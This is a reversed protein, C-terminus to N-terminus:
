EEESTEITEPPPATFTEGDYSWGIGPRPDLDDIRVLDDFGEALLEEYETHRLIICNKVLDDKIQAYVMKM